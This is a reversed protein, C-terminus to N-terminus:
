SDDVVDRFAQRITTAQFLQWDDPDLQALAEVIQEQRRKDLTLFLVRPFLGHRHQEIVSRYYEVYTEGKRRIVGKSQTSRDLEIFYSHEYDGHVFRAFADPKLVLQEGGIGNWSRWCAPEAQFVLDEIRKDAELERLSVYLESVGLIHDTFFPSPEWPRRLRRGGAPGTGSVLRQGSTTLGYIHGASGAYVGGVRRELRTVLDLDHLRQTLSRARRSRSLSSGDAFHLRQIQRVSLLRVRALDHLVAWDRESLQRRIRELGSRRPPTMPVSWHCLCDNAIEYGIQRTVPRAPCSEGLRDTPRGTAM